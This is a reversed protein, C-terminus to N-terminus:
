VTELKYLVKCGKLTEHVANGLRLIEELKADRGWDYVHDYHGRIPKFGMALLREVVVRPEAGESNFWITLYTKV